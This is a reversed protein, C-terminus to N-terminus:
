KIRGNKYAVYGFAVNLVVLSVGAVIRSRKRMKRLLSLIAYAGIAKVAVTAPKSQIFWRAMPNEEVGAGSDIAKFTTLIDAAQVAVFSYELAHYLKGPKAAMLPMAVMLLLILLRKM